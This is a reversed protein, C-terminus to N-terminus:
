NKSFFPRSYEILYYIMAGLGIIAAAIIPAKDLAWSLIRITKGVEKTTVVLNSATLKENSPVIMSLFCTFVGNEDVVACVRLRAWIVEGNKRIYRKEMSYSNLRGEAVRQASEQDASVDEPHTIEQWRKQRLEAETYGLLQCLVNNVYLFKGEKTLLANGQFANDFLDPAASKLFDIM